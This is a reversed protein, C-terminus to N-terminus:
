GPSNSYDKLKCVNNRNRIVKTIFTLFVACGLFPIEPCYTTLNNAMFLFFLILAAKLYVHARWSWMASMGSIQKCPQIPSLNTSLNIGRQKQEAIGLTAAWKTPPEKAKWIRLWLTTVRDLGQGEWLVCLNPFPYSAVTFIVQVDLCAKWPLWRMFYVLDQSLLSLKYYFLNYLVM